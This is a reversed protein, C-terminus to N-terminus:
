FEGQQGNLIAEVCGDFDNPGFEEGVLIEIEAEVHNDSHARHDAIRVKTTYQEPGPGVLSLYISGGQAIYRRESKWGHSALRDLLEKAVPYLNIATMTKITIKITGALRM